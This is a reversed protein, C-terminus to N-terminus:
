LSKTNYKHRGRVAASVEEVTLPSEAQKRSAVGRGSTAERFM